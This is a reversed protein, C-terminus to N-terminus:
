AGAAPAGSGLDGAFRRRLAAYFGSVHAEFEGLKMVSNVHVRPFAFRSAAAGFGGDVNMFACSFGAEEALRMERPTVSVPDGFPYALAWIPKGLLQELQSRNRIIEERAIDEPLQSLVPHSLTHAGISMGAGSLERLQSETLLAFRRAGSNAMYRAKWDDRLGLRERIQELITCRTSQDYRSMKQLLQGWKSRREFESGVSLALDFEPLEFAFGSASLFMLHLEEYWLLSSTERASSGTVFFLCSVGREQLVPLMDTFNNQLGDDCTLLVPRPPLTGQDLCWGHFQEASIVSYKRQLLRIQSRLAEATVLTGDLAPDLSRYGSPSVKHYTVVAAGCIFEL